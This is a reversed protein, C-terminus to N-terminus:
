AAAPEGGNVWNPLAAFFEEEGVHADKLHSYPMKRFLAGIVEQLGSMSVQLRNRLFYFFMFAPVAIFLGSATAILVEGIAGSLKSPDGVGSTGLTAFASMMGTVTGTLGIMPTCVGIVSLYNIRTTITSNVKNLETFLANEVAEEGDGVFSLAVRAVDCYASNSNKCFQYAGVYDGARFLDQVQSVQAEPAMKKFGTRMWLDVTLWILAVSCATIPYMVWGGEVFRDMLTHEHKVVAAAEGGAAPAEEALIPSVIALNGFLMMACASARVVTQILTASTRYQMTAKPALSTQSFAPNNLLLLKPLNLTKQLPKPPNKKPNM